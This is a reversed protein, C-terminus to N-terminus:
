SFRIDNLEAMLSSRDNEVEQVIPLNAQLFSNMAAMQNKMDEFEQRNLVVNNSSFDNVNSRYSSPNTNVKGVFTSPDCDFYIDRDYDYFQDSDNQENGPALSYDFNAFDSSGVTCPKNNNDYNSKNGFNVRSMPRCTKVHRVTSPVKHDSQVVTSKPIHSADNKKCKLSKSNKGPTPKNCIRRKRLNNVKSTNVEPKGSAGSTQFGVCVNSVTARNSPSIDTDQSNLDLPDYSIIIDNNVPIDDNDSEAM